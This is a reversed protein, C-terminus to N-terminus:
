VKNAVADFLFDGIYLGSKPDFPGGWCIILAYLQKWQGAGTVVTNIPLQRGNYAIINEPHSLECPYKNCIYQVWSSRGEKAIVTGIISYQSGTEPTPCFTFNLHAEQLRPVVQSATLTIYETLYVTKGDRLKYGPPVRPLPEATSTPAKQASAPVKDIKVADASFSVESQQTREADLSFSVAEVPGSRGKIYLDGLSPWSKVTCYAWPAGQNMNTCLADAEGKSPSDVVYYYLVGQNLRWYPNNNLVVTVNVTNGKAQGCLFGILNVTSNQSLTTVETTTFKTAVRVDIASVVALLASVCMLLMAVHRM